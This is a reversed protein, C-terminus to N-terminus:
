QYRVPLYSRRLKENFDDSLIDVPFIEFDFSTTFQATSITFRNLEFFQDDSFVQGSLLLNQVPTDALTARFQDIELFRQEDNYELFFSSNVEDITFPPSLNLDDFVAPLDTVSIEGDSITISPAFIAYSQLWSPFEKPEQPLENKTRVSFLESVTFQGTEPNRILKLGPKSLDFGSISLQRRLLDWANINISIEDLSLVAETTDVPASFRPKHLTAHFPLFGTISEITLTGEFNDNFLETLEGSIYKKSVPLQLAGLMLTLIILAAVTIIGASYLLFSWIKYLWRLFLM